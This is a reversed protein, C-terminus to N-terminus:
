NRSYTRQVTAIGTLWYYREGSATTLSVDYSYNGVQLGSSVAPAMSLEFSGNPLDIGTWNFTAVQTTGSTTTIDADISYGTLNVPQAVYFVGSAARDIVLASGSVTASVRFQDATLGSALVYYVSNLALNCPVITNSNGAAATFIVAENAQLKHCDAAFLAAGGSVTIGDLSQRQQTARLATRWTANQLITIDYTAPYIM